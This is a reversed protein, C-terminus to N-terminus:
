SDVHAVHEGSYVAQRIYFEPKSRADGSSEGIQKSFISLVQVLGNRRPGLRSCVPLFRNIGVRLAGNWPVFANTQSLLFFLLPVGFLTRWVSCARITGALPGRM